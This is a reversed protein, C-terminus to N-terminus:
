RNVNGVRGRKRLYLLMVVSIGALPLSIAQSTSLLGALISGRPDGRWFEFLFRGISYCFAYSWFIEGYFTRKKRLVLLFIFLAFLSLSGYLQVPHLPIGQPALSRYDTFTVAWPLTSPRGYCCGALFCGIRGFAHGIAISPAFIDTMQWLPLGHRKAYWIGMAAAPLLGGFFVLGGEWIKLIKLPDDAYEGFNMLVYLLRSGILAVLLVYFAIDMIKDPNIGERVAQRRALFLGVMIGIAIMLGYSYITLFGIQFLIPHM